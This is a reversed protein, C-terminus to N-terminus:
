PLAMTPVEGRSGSLSSVAAPEAPASAKFPPSFPAVPELSTSIRCCLWVPQLPSLLAGGKRKDGHLEGVAPLVAHGNVDGRDEIENDVQGEQSPPSSPPPTAITRIDEPPASM